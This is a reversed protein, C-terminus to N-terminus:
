MQMALRSSADKKPKEQKRWVFLRLLALVFANVFDLSDTEYGELRAQSRQRREACLVWALRDIGFSDM